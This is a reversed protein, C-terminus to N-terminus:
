REPLYPPADPSAAKALLIRAQAANRRIEETLEEANAFQREERIRAALWLRLNKGYLDGSYDLLWAEAQPAPALGVTPHEGINVVADCVVGDAEAKAAYVGWAPVLVGAPLPLNATPIGWQRGIHNGSKVTGSLLHPHDLMAMARDTEGDRLLRRIGTSSVVEGEWTVPPIVEAAIGRARCYAALLEATGEGRHGFRFDYGCVVAKAGALYTEAFRKWSMTMMARDFPLTLIEDMGYLRTMLLRRQELTSLLEVPGEGLLVSPHTDFTMAAASCHLEDALRRAARLLAGHGRHVGDFYGLAIVRDM